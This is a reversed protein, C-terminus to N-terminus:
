DSSSSESHPDSPNYDPDLWRGTTPRSWRGTLVWNRSVSDVLPTEPPPPQDLAAAAVNASVRWQDTEATSAAAGANVRWLGM